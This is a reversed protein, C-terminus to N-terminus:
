TRGKEKKHSEIMKRAFDEVTMLQIKFNKTIQTMDMPSDFMDFSALMPLLSEPFGPVPEGPAVNNVTIKHNLLREYVGVVDLFSLPEPGGIVLRQNMAKSNGVSTLMIEAVDGASIWSHKRRGEGVLTVPRGNIAPLGVTNAVWFEMFANPAIITHKLGSQRLYEETKGKAQLFPVPSHADATSASVFIFQKVGAEKAADILNRNGELDVTQPNDLGGLKASNVTTIVVEVGKCAPTLSSPDKVDGMTIQAGAEVLPKAKLQDRVLCRVPKNRALLMRAVAGGLDGTAGAVLIANTSEVTNKGFLNDMLSGEFNM